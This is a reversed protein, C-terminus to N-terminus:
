LRERNFSPESVYRCGAVPEEYRPIYYIETNRGWRKVQVNIPLNNSVLMATVVERDTDV